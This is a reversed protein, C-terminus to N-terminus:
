IHILSLRLQSMSSGSFVANIPDAADISQELANETAAVIRGQHDSVYIEAFTTKSAEALVPELTLGIAHAVPDPPEKENITTFPPQIETTALDLESSIQNTAGLRYDQHAPEAQGEIIAQFSQRYMATVFAGQALLESETQRILASEYLRLIQIGALPLIMVILSLGVLVTRLRFRM